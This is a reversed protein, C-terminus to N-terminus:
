EENKGKDPYMGYSICLYTFRSVIHLQLFGKWTVIIHFVLGEFMVVHM